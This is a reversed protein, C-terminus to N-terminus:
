GRRKAAAERRALEREVADRILGRREIEREVAARIFDARKEKEDLLADVRTLTGARFRAPMSEDNIRKRGVSRHKIADGKRTL